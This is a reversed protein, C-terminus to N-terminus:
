KGVSKKATNNIAAQEDSTILGAKELERSLKRVDSLFKGDSPASASFETITKTITSGEYEFDEVGTNLGGIIITTPVPVFTDVSYFAESTVGFVSDWDRIIVIPEDGALPNWDTLEALGDSDPNNYIRSSLLIDKSWGNGSIYNRVTGRQVSDYQDDILFYDEITLFTTGGDITNGTMYGSNTVGDITADPNRWQGYQGFKDYDSVDNLIIPAAEYNITITGQVATGFQEVNPGRTFLLTASYEYETVQAQTEATFMPTLVLLFLLLPRLGLM